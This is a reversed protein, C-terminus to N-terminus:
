PLTSQWIERHFEGAKSSPTTEPARRVVEFVPLAWPVIKGVRSGLGDTRDTARRPGAGRAFGTPSGVGGKPSEQESPTPESVAGTVQWTIPARHRFERDAHNEVRKVKVRRQFQVADWIERHVGKPASSPSVMCFCTYGLGFPLGNM